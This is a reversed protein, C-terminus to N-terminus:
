RRNSGGVSQLSHAQKNRSLCIKRIKEADNLNQFSLFDSRRDPGVFCQCDDEPLLEFNSPRPSRSEGETTKSWFNLANEPTDFLAIGWRDIGTYHQAM